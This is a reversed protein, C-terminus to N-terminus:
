TKIKRSERFLWSRTPKVRKYCKRQKFAQDEGYKKVSFSSSTQKGSLDVWMSKYRFIQSDKLKNPM